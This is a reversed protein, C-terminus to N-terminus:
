FSSSCGIIPSFTDLNTDDAETEKASASAEKDKLLARVKPNPPVVSGDSEEETTLALLVSAIISVLMKAATPHFETNHVFEYGPVWSRQVNQTPLPESGLFNLWRAQSRLYNRPSQAM